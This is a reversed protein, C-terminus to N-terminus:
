TKRREAWIRALSVGALTLIAVVILLSSAAAIKPDTSSQVDSWLKVSVPKGVSGLMFMSVQLEHTSHVFAFLMGIIIGPSIIPLTITSVAVLPRAGCIIAARELNRDASRLSAATNIVVLPLSGVAHACALGLISNVLGLPAFFLFTALATIVPPTVLASLILANLLAEGPITYRILAFAAPVGLLTAIAASTFGLRVSVWAADIWEPDSAVADYWRLSFSEPPFTLHNSASFSAFVLVVVPFLVYMAVAVVAAMLGIYGVSVKSMM